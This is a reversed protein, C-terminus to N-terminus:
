REAAPAAPIRAAAAAPVLEFRIPVEARGEAPALPALAARVCTGLEGAGTSDAVVRTAAAALEVVVVGDVGPDQRLADRYCAELAGAKGQVAQRAEGAGALPEGVTVRPEAGQAATVLPRDQGAGGRALVADGDLWRWGVPEIPVTARKLRQEPGCTADDPLAFVLGLRLRGARQADLIRRAGAADVEVPLERDLTPWLKAGPGLLLSVPPALALRRGDADYPAFALKDAAVDVEYQGELAEARGRAHAAAQEGRAVADGTPRLREAPTLAACLATLDAPGALRRPAVEAAPDASVIPNGPPSPAAALLLALAIM